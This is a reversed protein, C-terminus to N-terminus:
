VSGSTTLVGLEFFYSLSKQKLFHTEYDQKKKNPNKQKQKKPHNITTVTRKITEAFINLPLCNSTM